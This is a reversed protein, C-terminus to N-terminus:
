GRLWWILFRLLENMIHGLRTELICDFTSNYCPQEFSPIVLLTPGTLPPRIHRALFAALLSKVAWAIGVATGTFAYDGLGLRTKWLLRRCVCKNLFSGILGAIRSITDLNQQLKGSLMLRQLGSRELIRSILKLGSRQWFSLSGASQRHPDFVIKSGIGVRGGLTQIRILLSHTRGDGEYLFRLQVPLALLSFCATIMVLLLSLWCFLRM